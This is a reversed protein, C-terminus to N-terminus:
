KRQVASAEPVTFYELGIDHALSPTLPTLDDTLLREAARHDFGLKALYAAVYRDAAIQDSESPRFDPQAYSRHWSIGKATRHVWRKRGALWIYACLSDCAARPGVYTQMANFAIFDGISLAALDGGPSNLWVIIGDYPGDSAHVHFAASVVARYDEPEIRGQLSIAHKGDNM